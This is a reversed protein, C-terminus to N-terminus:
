KLNALPNELAKRIKDDTETQLTKMQTNIREELDIM